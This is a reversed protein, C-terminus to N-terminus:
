QHSLGEFCGCLTSLYLITLHFVFDLYFLIFHKTWISVDESGIKTDLSEEKQKPEMTLHVSISLLM